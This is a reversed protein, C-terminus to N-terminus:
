WREGLHQHADHHFATAAECFAWSSRSTHVSTTSTAQRVM